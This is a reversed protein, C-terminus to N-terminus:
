SLSGPAASTGSARRRARLVTLHVDNELIVSQIKVDPNRAHLISSIYNVLFHSWKRGFNHNLHMTDVNKKEYVDCRFWGSYEGLVQSIYWLINEDILDMGRRLLNEQLKRYGYEYAIDEIEEISLKDLIDGFIERSITLWDGPDDFRLVDKYQLLVKNILANTSM